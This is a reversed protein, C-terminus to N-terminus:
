KNKKNGKLSFIFIVTVALTLVTVTIQDALLTGPLIFFAPVTGLFLGVTTIGFCAGPQEPLRSVLGGLTVTMTMSFLGIGIVSILIDSNGFLMFPLSLILSSVATIKAGIIDSVIGGLMKGIGMVFFLIVSDLTDSRWATPIAYGIYARVTVACFMLLVFLWLSMKKNAIDFGEARGSVPLHLRVSRIIIFSVAMLLLPIIVLDTKSLLQGMIVGFSGAGVFIGSPTLKGGVDCLTYKAGSIHVLANGICLLIFAIIDFPLVLATIILVVGCGGIDLGPYRDQLVGLIGQPVFALCDYLLAFLVWHKDSGFRNFLFYFCAVELSFHVTAYLWGVLMGRKM